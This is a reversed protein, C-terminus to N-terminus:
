SRVRAAAPAGADAAAVRVPDAAASPGGSGAPAPDPQPVAASPTVPTGPSTSELESDEAPPPTLPAEAAATSARSPRPRPKAKARKAVARIADTPKLGIRELAAAEAGANTAAEYAAVVADEAAEEDAILRATEARRTESAQQWEGVKVALEGIRTEMDDDIVARRYASLADTAMKKAM